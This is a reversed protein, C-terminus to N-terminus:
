GGFIIKREPFLAQLDTERVKRHCLAKQKIDGHRLRRLRGHTNFDLQIDLLINAPIMYRLWEFIAGKKNQERLSLLIYLTYEGYRMEIYYGDTGCFTDLWDCVMFYVYPSRRNWYSLVRERLSETDEGQLLPLGMFGARRLLGDRQATLIWQNDEVRKKDTAEEELIPSEIEALKQFQMFDSLVAPIYKGYRDM